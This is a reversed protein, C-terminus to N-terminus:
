RTAPQWPGAPRRRVVDTWADPSGNVIATADDLTWSDHTGTITGAGEQVRQVGYEWAPAEADPTTYPNADERSPDEPFLPDRYDLWDPEYGCAKLAWLVGDDWATAATAREHDALWDSALIAEARDLEGGIAGARFTPSADEWRETTGDEYYTRALIEAVAEADPDFEPTTSM